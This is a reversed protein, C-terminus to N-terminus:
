LHQQAVCAHVQFVVQSVIIALWYVSLSRGIARENNQVLAITQIFDSRQVFTYVGSNLTDQTHRVAFETSVLQGGLTLQLRQKFGGLFIALESVLVGHCVKALKDGLSQRVVHELLFQRLALPRELVHPFTQLAANHLHKADLHGGVHQFSRQCGGVADHGLHGASRM